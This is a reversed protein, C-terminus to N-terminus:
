GGGGGGMSSKLPPDLGTAKKPTAISTRMPRSSCYAGNMEVMARRMEDENTFRVFGYGRSAGSHPDIVVRAGKVTKYRGSFTSQLLYDTVDPALDGVFISYEQTSVASGISGTAFPGKENVGFSAWNLRFIKGAGPIERGNFADLIRQAAYHSNFDIFGYGQPYGTGKDRIIKVNTVEGTHAFLQTVFNEDMYPELEGIWLTKIERGDADLDM